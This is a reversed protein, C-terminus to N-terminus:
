DHLSINEPKLLTEHKRLLNVSNELCTSNEISLSELQFITLLQKGDTSVLWDALDEVIREKIPSEYDKRFFLGSPIYEPSQMIVHLQKAIQPNLEALTDFGSKSVLCAAAKNFFVPLVADNLKSVNTVMSFFDKQAKMGNEKLTTELWYPALSTRSNVFIILDKGILQEPTKIGSSKNTLLIYQESITGNTVPMLMITDDMADVVPYLEPLTLFFVEAEKNRLAQYTEDISEFVVPKPEAPIHASKTLSNTWTKVAATADNVNINSGLISQSFGFVIPYTKEAFSIQPFSLLFIFLILSVFRTHSHRSIVLSNYIFVIPSDLTTSSTKM